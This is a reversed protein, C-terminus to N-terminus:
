KVPLYVRNRLVTFAPLLRYKGELTNGAADVYTHGSEDLRFAALDAPQGVEIRVCKDKLGWIRAPEGITKSLATHLPMGLCLFKSITTPLDFVPGNYNGNHLDTSITDPVFDQEMAARLVPFALSNLGHATDFIVGRERAQWALTKVTGDAELIGVESDHYTHTYVDGAQLTEFLVKPDMAAQNPHVVLPLELRRALAAARALAEEPHKPCVNPTLRIKVGLINEPNQRFAAAFAEEDLWSLDELEGAGSLSDTYMGIRSCNMIEKCMADSRLLVHRRFDEYNDAGASGQDIVCTTGCPLHYRHPDLGIFGRGTDHFIHGHADCLGPTLILGRGDLEDRATRSLTAAMERIHGGELYLDAPEMAGTELDLVSAQRIILDTYLDNVGM